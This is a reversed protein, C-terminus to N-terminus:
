QVLRARYFRGGQGAAAEPDSFRVAGDTAATVVGLETWSQLDASVELRYSRCAEGRLNWEDPRGGPRLTLEGTQHDDARVMEVAALVVAVHDENGCGSM